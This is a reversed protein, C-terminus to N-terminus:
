LPMELPHAAVTYNLPHYADTLQPYFQNSYNTNSTALLELLRKHNKIFIRRTCM